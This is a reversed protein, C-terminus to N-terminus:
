YRFTTNCKKSTEIIANVIQIGRGSERLQQYSGVLEGLEKLGENNETNSLKVDILAVEPLNKDIEALAQQYNAAM